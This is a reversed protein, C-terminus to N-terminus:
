ILPRTDLMLSDELAAAELTVSCIHYKWHSSSCFHTLKFKRCLEFIQKMVYTELGVLGAGQPYGSVGRGAGM